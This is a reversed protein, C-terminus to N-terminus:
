VYSECTINWQPFANMSKKTEEILKEVKLLKYLKEKDEESALIQKVTKKKFKKNVLDINHKTVGALQLLDSDHM